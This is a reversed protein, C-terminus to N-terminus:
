RAGGAREFLHAGRGLLLPRERGTRVREVLQTWRPALRSVHHDAAARRASEGLLHREETHEVLELIVRTADALDFCVRVSDDTLTETRHGCPRVWALDVASGAVPVISPVGAAAALLVGRPLSPTGSASLNIDFNAIFSVLETETTASDVSSDGDLVVRDDLELWSRVGSLYDHAWPPRDHDQVTLYARLDLPAIPVIDGGCGCSGAPVARGTRSDFAIPPFGGCRACRRVLGRALVSLLTMAAGATHDLTDLIVAIGLKTSHPRLTIGLPAGRAEIAPPIVATTVGSAAIARGVVEDPAVVLDLRALAWPAGRPLPLRQATPRWLTHAPRTRLVALMDDFTGFVVVTGVGAVDDRCPRWGWGCADAICRAESGGLVIVAV